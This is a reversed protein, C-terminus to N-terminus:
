TPRWIGQTDAMEQRPTNQFFVGWLKQLKAQDWEVAPIGGLNGSATRARRAKAAVVNRTGKGCRISFDMAAQTEPNWPLSTGTELDMVTVARVGIASLAALINHEPHGLCAASAVVPKEGETLSATAADRDDMYVLRYEDAVDLGAASFAARQDKVSLGAGMTRMFGRLGIKWETDISNSLRRSVTNSSEGRYCSCTKM